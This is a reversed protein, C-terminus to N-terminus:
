NLHRKEWLKEVRKKEHPTIIKQKQDVAPITFDTDHKYWDVLNNYNLRPLDDIHKKM